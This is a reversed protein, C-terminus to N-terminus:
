YILPKFSNIGVIKITQKKSYESCNLEDSSDECDEHGDCKFRVPLCEASTACRFFGTECASPFFNNKLISKKFGTFSARSKSDLKRFIIANYLRSGVLDFYSDV